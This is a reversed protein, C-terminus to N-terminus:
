SSSGTDPGSTRTKEWRATAGKEGIEKLKERSLRKARAPGGSLGGLRGRKVMEPNKGAEPNALPTGDM